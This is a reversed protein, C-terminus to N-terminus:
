HKGAKREGHRRRLVVEIMDLVMKQDSPELETARTAIQEALPSRDAVRREAGGMLPLGAKEYLWEPPIGLVSALSQLRDRAPQFVQGLEIQSLYPHSIRQSPPLGALARAVDPLNLGRMMRVRRLYAGLTEDAHPRLEQERFEEPNQATRKGRPM